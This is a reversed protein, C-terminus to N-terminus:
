ERAPEGPKSANAEIARGIADMAPDRGAAYDAFTMPAAIQPAVWTRDDTSDLIQWYRSSAYVKTKSHPLVFFTSEGTFQPRSGTPEGVFTASTFKEILNVTNQAASFTERGIIVWLHGPRNIREERILGEFLPRILGTNGGGNARMDIVLHEAGHEKITSFVREFTESLKTDPADQISGFYFYVLKHKPQYAVRVGERDGSLYGPPNALGQHVYTFGPLDSGSRKVPIEVPSLTITSTKGQSDQITLEAASDSTSAGISQLITPVALLLPGWRRHGMANDVSAYPRVADLAAVSELPGFKLVRAGVLEPHDKAGIVFLGEPFWQMHVPLRPVSTAGVPQLAVTTHGDGIRATLRRLRLRIQADTLKPVDRELSSLADRFEEPTVHASLNYHMQAIRRGYFELDWRWGEDRTTAVPIALKGTLGTLAAFRPDDRLPDLDTDQELTEQDAFRANLAKELYELAEKKHGTVAYVCCMDYLSANPAFGLDLSHQWADLAEDSRHVSHLAFGLSHWAHGDDPNEGLYKKMAAIAEDHKGSRDLREADAIPNPPGAITLLPAALLSLLALTTRRM